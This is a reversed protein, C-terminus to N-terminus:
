RGQQHLDERQPLVSGRLRPLQQPERQSQLWQRRAEELVSPGEPSGRESRRALYHAHTQGEEKPEMLKANKGRLLWSGEPLVDISPIDDWQTELIDAYNM